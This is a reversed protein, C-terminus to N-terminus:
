EACYVKVWYLRFDYRLRAKFIFPDDNVRDFTVPSSFEYHVVSPTPTYMSNFFDDIFVGNAIVYFYSSGADDQYKVDFGTVSCDHPLDIDAVFYVPQALMGGVTELYTDRVFYESISGSLFQFDTHSVISIGMDAPHECRCDLADCVGDGNLDERSRLGLGYGFGLM